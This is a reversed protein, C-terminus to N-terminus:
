PKPWGTAILEAVLTTWGAQEAVLITAAVLAGVALVPHNPRTPRTLRALV